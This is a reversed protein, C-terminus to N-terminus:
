KIKSIFNCHIQGLLKNKQSENLFEYQIQINHEKARIHFDDLVDLIDADTFTCHTLDMVLKANGPIQDLLSKLLSKNLFTVQQHFRIM